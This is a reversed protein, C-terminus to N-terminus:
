HGVRGNARRIQLARDTVGLRAAARQLNGAEQELVMRIAVESAVRGIEKLCIGGEVAHRIAADFAEDPWGACESQVAPREKEPVAGVTIPGNGVHRQWLRAVTQRLDRVNGPYDRALLYERVAPDFEVTAGPDFQSVFHQALTLIDDGRERLPPTTCQWGAIRYYLDARFRGDAVAAELDRHTACVLRFKSSQWHNSGLRKYQHEQVVRLLQAQIPLSLEGVEDLFLTGRHALAFAGDRPGTSGTYAGREHGFLESGALEPTLTTCDVVVYDGLDARGDLDHILRAIKEKGTGTEGTILVSADSFHAVEVVSRLLRRWALSDGAVSQRLKPSDLLEHVRAWRAVRSVVENAHAPLQPWHVFDAAGADLAAWKQPTTPRGEDVCLALVIPQRSLENLARLVAPTIQDLVAICVSCTSESTRAIGVGADEILTRLRSQMEAPVAGLFCLKVQIPRVQM